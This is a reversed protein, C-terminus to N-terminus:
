HALPADLQALVAPIITPIETIDAIAHPPLVMQLAALPM